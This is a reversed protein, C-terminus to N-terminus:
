SDKQSIFGRKELLGIIVTRTAYLIGVLSVVGLSIGIRWRIKRKKVEDSSDSTSPEKIRYLRISTSDKGMRKLADDINNAEVRSFTAQHEEFGDYERRLSKEANRREIEKLKIQLWKESSLPGNMMMNTRNIEEKAERVYDMNSRTYKKELEEIAKLYDNPEDSDSIIFRVRQDPPIFEIKDEYIRYCLGEVEGESKEEDTFNEQSFFESVTSQPRMSRTRSRILSMKAKQQPSQIQDSDEVSMEEISAYKVEESDSVKM